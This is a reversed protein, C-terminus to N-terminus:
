EFVGRMKEIIVELIEEIEKAFAQLGQYFMWIAEEMSPIKM